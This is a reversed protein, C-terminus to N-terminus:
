FGREAVQEAPCERMKAEEELIRQWLLGERCGTRSPVREDKGGGRHNGAVFAGEAVQEAPVREIKAEEEITGQRL